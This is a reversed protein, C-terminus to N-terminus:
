LIRYTLGFTYYQRNDFWNYRALTGIRSKSQYQLGISFSSKGVDVIGLLQPRYKTYIVTDHVQQINNVIIEKETVNYEYDISHLKNAWIIAKLRLDTRNFSREYCRLTDTGNLMITDTIENFVTDSVYQTLGNRYITDIKTKAELLSLYKKNLEKKEKSVSDLMKRADTKKSCQEFSIAIMFIALLALAVNTLLNRM